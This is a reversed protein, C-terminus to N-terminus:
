AGEDEDGVANFWIDDLPKEEDDESVIDIDVIPVKHEVLAHYLAAGLTGDKDYLGTVIMYTLYLGVSKVFEQPNCHEAIKAMQRPNLEAYMTLIMTSFFKDDFRHEVM